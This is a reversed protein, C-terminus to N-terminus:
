SSLYSEKYESQTSIPFTSQKSESHTYKNSLHTCILSCVWCLSLLSINRLDFKDAVRFVVVSNPADCRSWLVVIFVLLLEMDVTAILDKLPLGFM